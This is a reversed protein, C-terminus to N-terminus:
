YWFFVWRPVRLQSVDTLNGSAIFEFLPRHFSFVLVAIGLAVPLLDVARFKGRIGTAVGVGALIALLAHFPMRFRTTAVTGAAILTFVAMWSLLLKMHSDCWTTRLGAAACLLLAIWALQIGWFWREFTEISVNGWAELALNRTVFWELGWLNLARVASRRVYEGPDEAIAALSRETAVRSRTVPDPLRNWGRYVEHPEGPHSGMWLNYPAENELLIAPGYRLQNRVVWPAIVVATTVGFVVALRIAQSWGFRRVWSIALLAAFVGIVPKLLMAVGTLAGLVVPRVFQGREILSTRWFVFATVTTYLTEPWLMASFAIMTPDFVFFITAMRAANQSAIRRTLAYIPIAVSAGVIAQFLKSTEQWGAGTGTFLSTFYLFAFYAPPRELPGTELVGTERWARAQQIYLRDDAILRDFSDSGLSFAVRVLLGVALLGLFVHDERWAGRGPGGEGDTTLPKRPDPM